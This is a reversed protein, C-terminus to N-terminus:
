YFLSKELDCVNEDPNTLIAQIFRTLVSSTDGSFKNLLLIFFQMITEISEGGEPLVFNTRRAPPNQFKQAYLVSTTCFILYISDFIPGHIPLCLVEFLQYSKQTLNYSDLIYCLINHLVSCLHLLSNSKCISDYGHIHNHLIINKLTKVLMKKLEKYEELAVIKFVTCLDELFSCLLLMFQTQEHMRLKRQLSSQRMLDLIGFIALCRTVLDEDFVGCCKAGPITLLFLYTRSANLSLKRNLSSTPDLEWLSVLSM